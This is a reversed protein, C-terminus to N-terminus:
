FLWLQNIGSKIVKIAKTIHAEVTKSSIGLESAIEKVSKGQERSMRFVLECKEPLQGMLIELKGRVDNFSLLERTSDDVFHDEELSSISVQNERKRQAVAAYVSYRLAASIYTRFSFRLQTAHRNNWIELFIQQVVEEADKQSNLKYYATELLRDWYRDFLIKFARDDNDKLLAFLAEDTNKQYDHM